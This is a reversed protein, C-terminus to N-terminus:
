HDLLTVESSSFCRVIYILIPNFSVVAAGCAQSSSSGTDTGSATDDTQGHAFDGVASQQAAAKYL